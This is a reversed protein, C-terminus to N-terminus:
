AGESLSPHNVRKTYDPCTEPFIIHNFMCFQKFLNNAEEQTGDGESIKLLLAENAELEEESEVPISSTFHICKECNIM